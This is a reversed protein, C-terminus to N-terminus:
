RRSVPPKRMAHPAHGPWLDPFVPAYDAPLVFGGATTTSVEGPAPREPVAPARTHDREYAELAAEAIRWPKLGVRLAPLDGRACLRTVSRASVAWRRAVDAASLYPGAM